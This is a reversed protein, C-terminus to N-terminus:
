GGLHPWILHACGLADGRRLDAAFADADAARDFRRFFRQGDVTWRLDWCPRPRTPKQRSPRSTTTAKTAPRVLCVSPIWPEISRDPSIRPM